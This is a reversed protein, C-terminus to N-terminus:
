KFKVATGYWRRTGDIALDCLFCQVGVVADAGIEAAREKLNKCGAYYALTQDARIEKSIVIDIIEYDMKLDLTTLIISDMKANKEEEQAKEEASKGFFGM